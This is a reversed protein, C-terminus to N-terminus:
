GEPLRVEVTEEFVCFSVPSKKAFGSPNQLELVKRNDLKDSWGSRAPNEPVPRLYFRPIKTKRTSGFRLDAIANALPM